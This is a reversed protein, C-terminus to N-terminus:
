VSFGKIQLPKYGVILDPHFNIRKINEDVKLNSDWGHWGRGLWRMDSARSIAEMSHFRVRSMKSDFTSKDCIYVIKM